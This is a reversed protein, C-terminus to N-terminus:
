WWAWLTSTSASIVTMNALAQASLTVQWYQGAVMPIGNASTATGGFLRIYITGGSANNFTVTTQTTPFGSGNADATLTSMLASSGTVALTGFGTLIPIPGGPIWSSLPGSAM